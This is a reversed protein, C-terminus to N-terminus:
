SPIFNRREGANRTNTSVTVLLKRLLQEDRSAVAGASSVVENTQVILLADIDERTKNDGNKGYYKQHRRDNRKESGALSSSHLYQNDEEEGHRKRHSQTQTCFGFSM